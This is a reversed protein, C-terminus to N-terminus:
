AAPAPICLMMRRMSIVQQLSAERGSLTRYIRLPAPPNGKGSVPAISWRSASKRSRESQLLHLIEVVPHNIQRGLNSALTDISNGYASSVDLM